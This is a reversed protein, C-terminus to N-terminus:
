HRRSAENALESLRASLERPSFPKPQFEDAGAAIGAERADNDVGASLLIVWTSKLFEDARILRCLELGSKGPMSVDLVVIEPTFTQIAEWAADGDGLEDILALGSRSVAIAVLTRIDADDDAVIVGLASPTSM